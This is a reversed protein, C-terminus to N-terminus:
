VAVAKHGDPTPTHEVVYRVMEMANDLDLKERINERHKEVTRHSIYLKEGVEKSTLGEGTMQLIERERETLREHRSTPLDADASTELLSDSLGDGLYREGKVVARIGEILDSAPSGKLVYGLAGKRLAETVYNDDDKMSLVLVNVDEPQLEHLVDLGNLGPLGLDLILLEPDHEELLPRVDLGDNTTAEVRGETQTELLSRVGRRTVDHDEAIVVSFLM